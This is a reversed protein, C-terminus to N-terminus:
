DEKVPNTAEYLDCFALIQSVNEKTVTIAAFRKKAEIFKKHISDEEYDEQTALHGYTRSAGYMKGSSKLFRYHDGCVVQTDTVRTVAVFERRSSYQSFCVVDGVKADKLSDMNYSM